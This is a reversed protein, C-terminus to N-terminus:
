ELSLDRSNPHAEKVKFPNERKDPIKLIIAYQFKKKFNKEMKQQAHFGGFEKSVNASEPQYEQTNADAEM